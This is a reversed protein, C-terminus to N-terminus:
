STSPRPRVAPIVARALLEITETDTADLTQVVFYDMGADVLNQYYNAVQIPDGVVRSFRQEENIGQPYYRDLKAHAAEPTPALMLWSTFHTRLVSRPDRGIEGCRADLVDNKRHVDEPTRQLGTAHGPGFNCADAYRAVLRLATREGSGALLLPPGPSQQPPPTIREDVTTHHRGHFSFPEPGWVGRIIEIAEALAEQRQAVPLFPLGLQAFEAANWGHGLGLILRGHSLNDLDAALRATLVPARYGACLVVSGLRIRSTQVAIASLHLWAEPSYAPHDGIFFGDFGLEEALRGAALLSQAPNEDTPPPIAQLGWGVRHEFERVWPHAEDVV